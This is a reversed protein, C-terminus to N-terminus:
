NSNSVWGPSPDPQHNIQRSNSKEQSESLVPQYFARIPLTFNKSLVPKFNERDIRLNIDILRRTNKRDTRIQIQPQLGGLGVEKLSVMKARFNCSCSISESLPLMM